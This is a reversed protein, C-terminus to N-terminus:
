FLYNLFFILFIGCLMFIIRIYYARRVWLENLFVSQIELLSSREWICSLCILISVFVVEMCISVDFVVEM